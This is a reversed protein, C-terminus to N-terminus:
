GHRGNNTLSFFLFQSIQFCTDLSELLLGFLIELGQLLEVLKGSPLEGVREGLQSRDVTLVQTVNAVSERPLGTEGISIAVNGPMPARGLNSTLPVCVLTSLRSRNFRNSQVIVVPRRFGPTSNEQPPLEAWWIEGQRIM